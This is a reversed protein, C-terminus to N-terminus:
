LNSCRKVVISVYNKVLIKKLTRFHGLLWNSMQQYLVLYVIFLYLIAYNWVTRSVLYFIHHLILGLTVSVCCQM